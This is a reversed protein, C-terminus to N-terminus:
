ESVGQKAEWAECKSCKARDTYDRAYWREGDIRNARAGCVAHPSGVRVIHRPYTNAEPRSPWVASTWRWAPPEVPVPESM